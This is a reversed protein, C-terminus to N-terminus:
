DEKVPVLHFLEKLIYDIDHTRILELSKLYAEASINGGFHMHLIEYLDCAKQAMEDRIRFDFGYGYESKRILGERKIRPFIPLFESYIVLRGLFLHPFIDTNGSIVRLNRILSELTTWPHFLIIGHGVDVSVHKGFRRKMDRLLNLADMNVRADTNKNFATLDDDFFSEFGIEEISLHFDRDRALELSRVLKDKHSLLLDPRTRISLKRFGTDQERLATIFDSLFPLPNETQIHFSTVKYQKRLYQAQKLLLAVTQEAPCSTFEQYQFICFACGHRKKHFIEELRQVAARSAQYGLGNLVDTVAFHDSSPTSSAYPCGTGAVISVDTYNAEPSREPGIYQWDLFPAYPFLEKELNWDLTKESYLIRNGDKFFLNPVSEFNGPGFFQEVFARMAARGPGFVAFRVNTHLLLSIANVNGVIIPMDPFNNEILRVIDITFVSDLCILSYNGKRILPILEDAYHANVIYTDCIVGRERLDEMFLCVGMHPPCNQIIELQLFLVKRQMIQFTYKVFPDPRLM